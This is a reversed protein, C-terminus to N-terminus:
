GARFYRVIVKRVCRYGFICPVNELQGCSPQVSYMSMRRHHFPVICPSCLAELLHLFYCVTADHPDQIRGWTIIRGIILKSQVATTRCLLFANAYADTALIILDYDLLMRVSQVRMLLGCGGYGYGFCLAHCRHRTYAPGNVLRECHMCHRIRQTCM